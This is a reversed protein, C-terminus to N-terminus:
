PELHLASFKWPFVRQSAAGPYEMTFSQLSSGGLGEHLPDLPVVVPARYRGWTLSGEIKGAFLFSTCHSVCDYYEFYSKLIRLLHQEDWVIVHDLCERRISGILREAFPNQWPSRPATLVEETGLSKLCRSVENGYAGDRDRLLFRPAEDFPFAERLQQAVWAANPQTTVNFHVVRRREHCLIVFVYLVRFTVTPVVFFDVSALSGVHNKLFTRWGQSPPKRPKPIYKAVTSEALDHGLLHLEAQIRPAGLDPKRDGHPSYPGPTKAAAFAPGAQQAIEM